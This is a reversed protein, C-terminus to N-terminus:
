EGAIKEEWSIFTYQSAAPFFPPPGYTLNNDYTLTITQYGEQDSDDNIAQFSYQDKTILSGYITISNRVSTPCVTINNYVARGIRGSQAIMAADIELDTDSALTLTIDEAAILGIADLGNHDTYNIDDKIYINGEGTFNDHNDEKAAVVTVRINDITGDIWVNDKVFIVSNNPINTTTPSGHYQDIDHSEVENCSSALTKVIQYQFQSGNFQIHYGEKNSKSLVEGNNEAETRLTSLDGKITNFDVTTVPFTRGAKFLDTRQYALANNTITDYPATPDEDATTYIAFKESGGHSFTRQSSTVLNNAASGDFLIGGNAHLPGTITTGSTFELNSDGIIAYQTLSPQAFTVEIIRFQNSYGDVWGKSKIKVATSNNPPPTIELQYVGIKDAPPPPYDIEYPGCANPYACDNTAVSCWSPTPIIDNCGNAYDDEDHALHWRYYNIGAEAIQLAKEKAELKRALKNQYVLLSLIGSMISIFIFTFVLTLMIMGGRQDKTPNKILTM